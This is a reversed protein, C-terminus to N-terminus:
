DGYRGPAKLRTVKLVSLRNSDRMRRRVGIKREAIWEVFAVRITRSPAPRRQVRAFPVGDGGTEDSGRPPKGVGTEREFVAGPSRQPPCFHTGALNCRNALPSPASM